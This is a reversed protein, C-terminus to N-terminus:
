KGTGKVAITQPSDSANGNVTVRASVAGPVTPAFSISVSCKGKPGVSGACNTSASFENSGAVTAGAFTVATGTKKKATNTLKVVRSKSRGVKVTGFNVSSRSISVAASVLPAPTATSNPTPSLPPNPTATLTPQPTPSSTPAPTATATVIPTSTVTPTPKATVTPTAATSTPTKTATPTPTSTPTGVSYIFSNIFLPYLSGGSLSNTSGTFGVWATNAGVSSPIDVNTWTNTYCNSGPCSGGATVDYLNLTLNSGDYTITASYTHGTTTNSTTAPSNLPVPFTSLKNVQFFADNEGSTDVPTGCLNPDGIGGTCPCQIYINPYVSPPLNSKYIQVSSYTFSDGGEDGALLGDYSDLELAFVNNPQVPVGGGQYFGGECGAGASFVNGEYGPQNTTNNLVFSVFQGNPVFTFSATFAQVNLVSPQYNLYSVQHESGTPIMLLNTGSLSANGGSRFTNSSSNLAWGCAGSTSFGSPCNIVQARALGPLFLAMLLIVLKKM